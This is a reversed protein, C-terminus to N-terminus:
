AERGANKLESSRLIIVGFVILSLAFLGASLLFPIKMGVAGVLMGSIWAGAARALGYGVVSLLMQGSAKLEDPVTLNVFKAMAFSLVIYCGGHLLQTLLTFHLDDSVGILLMRLGLAASSILLLRGVGLKRFIRDGILLFPIEAAASLFYSLGLLTSDAGMDQFYLSFYTNYYSMGVMQVVTFALMIMLPKNKFLKTVSVKQMAGHQHGRVKPLFFSAILGLGLFLSAFFPALHYNDAMIWGIVPATLAYAITGTMRVPGFSYKGKELSELAIADLLPTISTQFFAYACVVAYAFLTSNVYGGIFLVVSSAATLISLLVNKWKMRDGAAGWFPQVILAIIPSLAMISGIEGKDVGVGVLYNSYYTTYTANCMYLCAFFPLVGFPYPARSEKRM